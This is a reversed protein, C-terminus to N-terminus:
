KEAAGERGAEAEANEETEGDARLAAIDRELAAIDERLEEARTTSEELTLRAEKLEETVAKLEKQLTEKREATTEWANRSVSLEQKMERLRRADELLGAGVVGLVALAAAAAVCLMWKTAGSM